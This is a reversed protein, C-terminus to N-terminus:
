IETPIVSKDYKQPSNVYEKHGTIVIRIKMKKDNLYLVFIDGGVGIQRQKM